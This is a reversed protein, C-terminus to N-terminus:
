MSSPRRMTGLLCRITNGEDESSFIVEIFSPLDHLAFTGRVLRGCVPIIFNPLRFHDAGPVLDAFVPSFSVGSKSISTTATGHSDITNFPASPVCTALVSYRRPRSNGGEVKRKNNKTRPVGM